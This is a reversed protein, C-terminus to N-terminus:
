PTSGNFLRLKLETSTADEYRVRQRPLGWAVLVSLELPAGTGCPVPARKEHPRGLAPARVLLARDHPPLVAAPVADRRSAAADDALLALGRFRRIKAHLGGSQRTQPADA